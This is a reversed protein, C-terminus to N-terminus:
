ISGYLSISIYDIISNITHVDDTQLLIFTQRFISTEQLTKSYFNKWFETYAECRLLLHFENELYTGICKECLNNSVNNM